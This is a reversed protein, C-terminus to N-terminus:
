DRKEDLAKRSKKANFVLLVIAFAVIFISIFQSTSLMGVSGRADSRLFEILFRGIGYLILYIAGIDGKHKVRSGLFYLTGAILFDGASSFLQTPLVKVGAPAFSGAPFIVGLFSDTQAGYCCGAFFCGIRGIGQALAVQPMILDFYSVFDVKKIKCYIGGALAGIMIGGYVVFGGSGLVQLPNQLFDKWEVIVFLLKAGLFGCVVSIIALDVIIDPNLEKKKARYISVLVAIAFGIGIMVGYGHITFKGITLWDNCM